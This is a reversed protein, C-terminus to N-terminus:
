FASGCTQLVVGYKDFSIWQGAYGGPTTCKSFQQIASFDLIPKEEPKLPEPYRNEFPSKFPQGFPNSPLNRFQQQQLPSLVPQALLPKGLAALSALASGLFFPFKRM